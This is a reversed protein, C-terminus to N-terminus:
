KIFNGYDSDPVALLKAKQMGYERGYDLLLTFISLTKNDVAVSEEKSEYVRAYLDSALGYLEIPTGKEDFVISVGEGLMFNNLGNM